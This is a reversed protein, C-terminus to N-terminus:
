KYAYRKRSVEAIKEGAKDYKLARYYADHYFTFWAERGFGFELWKEKEHVSSIPYDDYALVWLKNQHAHTPMIDAMHIFCAEGEEFVIIAHGDSHGGTHIMKLGPAIEIEGSFTKVQDIIPLRNMEWYTNISRINPQGMEAWEVNTTYIPIDPFVPIYKEGDYKTLGSAHDYHLHTMLIADIDTLKLGLEALSIELFSEELVGFNRIQKATLKGNGMGSDILYNKGDLQILIPDTRLEMLNNDDVPYKNEWLAKPVVGFMAGADLHNVGGRLWTLRARGVQLQEVRKGGIKWSDITM